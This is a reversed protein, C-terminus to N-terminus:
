NKTDWNYLKEKIITSRLEDIENRFVTISYMIAVIIMCAIIFLESESIVVGMVCMLSIIYPLLVNFKNVLSM